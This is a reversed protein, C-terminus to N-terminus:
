KRTFTTPYMGEQDETGHGEKFVLKGSSLEFVIYDDENKEDDEEWTYIKNGDVEYNIVTELSSILEDIMESMYEEVTTDQEALAEDVAAKDMGQEEMMDYFYDKLDKTFDDAKREDFKMTLKGNNFKFAMPVDFDMGAIEEGNMECYWVGEITEEEEVVSSSKKDSKDDSKDSDNGCAAFSFVMVLVLLLALLKKM